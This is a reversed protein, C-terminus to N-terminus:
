QNEQFNKIKISNFDIKNLDYDKTKILDGFLKLQEVFGDNPCIFRRRSKVFFYADYYSCHAKWMLYAIVVSPSRSIGCMCHVFIKNSNEIFEICEKLHRMLNVNEEDEISILKHNINCSEPINMNVDILSLVHTIKEKSFYDFDNAGEIDGLYIKDTIKDIFESPPQSKDTLLNELNPNLERKSGRKGEM